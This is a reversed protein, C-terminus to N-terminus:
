GTAAVTTTAGVTTETSPVTTSDLVPVTSTGVVPTTIVPVTTPTPEDDDNWPRAILVVVLVALPVGILVRVLWKKSVARKAQKAQQVMKKQRNAKQRERKATGV